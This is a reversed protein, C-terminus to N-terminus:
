EDGGGTSAGARGLLHRLAGELEPHRFRYGAALLKEPSVRTSALPVERGMEGYRCRVAWAPVALWAPRGLVRALTQCFEENRVPRPAVVNVAGALEEQYLAYHFAALVDDLGIWSLYQQGDGIRGGLGLQFLPLMKQLAGGGPTLVVGMRMLAVRIGAERAPSAAEEWQRCVESIFASGAGEGENLFCDGREGYFGIASSSLMVRPRPQLAAITRALLATSSTRSALIERKKAPTWSGEGINEGALHIVADIPGCGQLSLQGRRPDWFIAGEGTQSARRVLRLVRHGGSTLFPVLGSGLPGSAGSILITLPQAPFLRHSALDALTVAHRYAFARALQRRVFPAALQGLPPFPLEYAIRDALITGGATAEFEHSHRWSRFPGRVQFDRFSRNEEYAEHRALWSFPFLGARMRMLVEGGPRIGGRASLVRMREWPPTLRALAGPRAHWQFVEAPSAPIFTAKHFHEKKDGFITM